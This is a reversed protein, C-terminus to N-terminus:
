GFLFDTTLGCTQKNNTLFEIRDVTNETKTVSLWDYMSRDWTCVVMLM